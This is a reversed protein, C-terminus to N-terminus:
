EYIVSDGKHNVSATFAKEFDDDHHLACYIEIDGIKINMM